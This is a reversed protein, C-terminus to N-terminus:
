AIRFRVPKIGQTWLLRYLRPRTIGLYRASAAVKGHFREM